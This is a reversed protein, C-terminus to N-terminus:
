QKTSEEIRRIEEPTRGTFPWGPNRILQEARANLARKAFRPMEKPQEPLTQPPRAAGIFTAPKEPERLGLDIEMEAIHLDRRNQRLQERLRLRRSEMAITFLATVLGVVIIISLHVTGTALLAVTGLLYVVCYLFFGRSLFSM